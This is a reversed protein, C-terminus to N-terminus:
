PPPLGVTAVPPHVAIPAAAPPATRMPVEIVDIKMLEVNYGYNKLM